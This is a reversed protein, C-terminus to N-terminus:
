HIEIAVNKLLYTYSTSGVARTIADTIKTTIVSKASSIDLEDIGLIITRIASSVNVDVTVAATFKTPTIGNVLIENITTNETVFHVTSSSDIGIAEFKTLLADILSSVSGSGTNNNCNISNCVAFQITKGGRMSTDALIRKKCVSINM